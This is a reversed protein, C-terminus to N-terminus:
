TSSGDSIQPQYSPKNSYFVALLLPLLYVYALYNPKNIETQTEIKSQENQTEIKTQEYMVLKVDVKDVLAKLKSIEYQLRQETLELKHELESVRDELILVKEILAKKDFNDYFRYSRGSNFDGYAVAMDSESDHGKCIFQRFGPINHPIDAKKIVPIETYNSCYNDPPLHTHWKMRAHFRKEGPLPMPSTYFYNSGEPFERSINCGHYFKKPM